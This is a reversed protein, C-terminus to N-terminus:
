HDREKQRRTKTNADICVILHDADCSEFYGRICQIIHSSEIGNTPTHVSVLLIHEDKDVHTLVTTAAVIDCGEIKLIDM